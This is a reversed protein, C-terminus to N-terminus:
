PLRRLLTRTRPTHLTVRVQKLIDHERVEFTTSYPRGSNAANLIEQVHLGRAALAQLAAAPLLRRAARLAWAPVSVASEFAGHVYKEIKVNAM